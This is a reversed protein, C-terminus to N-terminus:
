LSVRTSTDLKFQATGYDQQTMILLRLKNHKIYIYYNAIYMRLTHLVDLIIITIINSYHGIKLIASPPLLRVSTLIVIIM